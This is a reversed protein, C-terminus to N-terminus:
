LSWLLAESPYCRTVQTHFLPMPSRILNDCEAALKDLELLAGEVVGKSPDDAMEEGVLM